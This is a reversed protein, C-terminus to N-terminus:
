GLYKLRLEMYRGAIEYWAAELRATAGAVYFGMEETSVSEPLNASDPGLVDNRNKRCTMKDGPRPCRAWLYVFGLLEWGLSSDDSTLIMPAFFRQIATLFGLLEDDGRRSSEKRCCEVLARLKARAAAFDERKSEIEELKPKRTKKPRGVITTASRFLKFYDEGLPTFQAYLPDIIKEFYQRRRVQRAGVLEIVRDILAMFPAIPDLVAM